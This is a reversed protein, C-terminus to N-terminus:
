RCRLPTHDSKSEWSFFEMDGKDDSPGEGNVTALGQYINTGNAICPSVWWICDITTGVKPIDGCANNLRGVSDSIQVPGADTIRFLTLVVNFTTPTHICQTQADEEIAPGNGHIALKLYVNTGCSPTRGTADPASSGAPLGGQCGFIIVSTAIIAGLVLRRHLKSM